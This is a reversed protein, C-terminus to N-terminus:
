RGAQTLAGLCIVSPWKLLSAVAFAATKAVSSSFTGPDNRIGFYSKKLPTAKRRAVDDVSASGGTIAQGPCRRFASVNERTSAWYTRSFLVIVSMSASRFGRVDPEDACSRFQCRSFVM